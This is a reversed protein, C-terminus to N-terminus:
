GAGARPREDAALGARPEFEVHREDGAVVVQGHDHEAAYRLAFEKVRSAAASAAHRDWQAKAARRPSARPRLWAFHWLVAATRLAPAALIGDM